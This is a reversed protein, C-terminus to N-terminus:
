PALTTIFEETSLDFSLLYEEDDEDDSDERENWWHIMGDLSVGNEKHNISIDYELKRWSNSQLSYIEWFPDDDIDELYLMDIDIKHYCMVQRIIKYDNTVYDYGSGHRVIDVDM